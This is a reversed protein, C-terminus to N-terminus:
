AAAGERAEEQTEDQHDLLLDERGILAALYGTSFRYLSRALPEREDPPSEPYKGEVMQRAAGIGGPFHPIPERSINVGVALLLPDARNAPITPPDNRLLFKIRKEFGWWTKDAILAARECLTQRKQAYLKPTDEPDLHPKLYALVDEALVVVEQQPLPSGKVHKPLPRKKRKQAKPKRPAAVEQALENEARRLEVEAERVERALAEDERKERRLRRAEARMEDRLRRAEARREDRLRRMELRKERRLSLAARSRLDVTRENKAKELAAAFDPNTDRHHYFNKRTHGAIVAAQETSFGDRISLLFTQEAEPTIPVPKDQRGM